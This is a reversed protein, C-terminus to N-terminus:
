DCHWTPRGMDNIQYCTYAKAPAAFTVATSIALLAALILNKM